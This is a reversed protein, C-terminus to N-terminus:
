RNGFNSKIEKSEQLLRNAISDKYAAIEIMEYHYRVSDEYATVRNRVNEIVEKNPCVSFYKEIYRINPDDSPLVMRLARYKLDAEEWDQHERWQTLNGWISIVLSLVLSGIFLLVYKSTPEFRHIVIKKQPTNVMAHLKEHVVQSTADQEQKLQKVTDFLVKSRQEGNSAEKKTLDTFICIAERLRALKDIAEGEKVAM